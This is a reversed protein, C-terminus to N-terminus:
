IDQSLGYRVIRKSPFTTEWMAIAYRDSNTKQQPCWRVNLGVGASYPVDIDALIIQKKRNTAIHNCTTKTCYKKGSYLLLV